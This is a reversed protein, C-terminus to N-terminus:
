HLGGSHQRHTRAPGLQQREHWWGVSIRLKPDLQVAVAVGGQRGVWGSRTDQAQDVIGYCCLGSSALGGVYVASSATGSRAV